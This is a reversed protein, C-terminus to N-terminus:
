SLALALVLAGYIESKAGVRSTDIIVDDLGMYIAGYAKGGGLHVLTRYILNGSIGEPAIILNSQRQVAKEILIEDHYIELDPSEKQFYSVLNEATQLSKDVTQDRGVDMKRGGSLVSINPSIDIKNFEVFSYTIYDKKEKFTGCEDIGVPGYFFDYGDNTELLALRYTEQMQYLHKLVELFTHSPLGGRIAGAIKKENVNSLIKKEPNEDAIISIKEENKSYLKKKNTLDNYAEQTGFISVNSNFENIFENIATLLKVNQEHNTGAGIGIMKAKGKKKAFKKYKKYLTM